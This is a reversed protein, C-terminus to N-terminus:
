KRFTQKGIVATVPHAPNQVINRVYWGSTMTAENAYFHAGGTLDSDAGEMVAPALTVCFAMADLDAPATPEWNFEPDSPISMSSFQNKGYIVDHLTHAFGPTGVRNALIHLVARMADQGDGRAEKCACLAASHLDNQDYEL